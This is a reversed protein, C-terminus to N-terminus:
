FNAEAILRVENDIQDLEESDFDLIIQEEEAGENFAMFRDDATDVRSTQTFIIIALVLAGSFAPVLFKFIRGFGGQPKEAEKQNQYQARYSLRLENELKGIFQPSPTKM